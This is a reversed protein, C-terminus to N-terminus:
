HCRRSCRSVGKYGKSECRNCGVPEWLELGDLEEEKFGIRLLREKQPTAGLPKKCADCLKRGLRQAAVCNVSSGVLFPDVGMDVMRTITSPADNTHLTSFVLHGTLAAKM